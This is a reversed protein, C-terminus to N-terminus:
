GLMSAGAWAAAAAGAIGLAFRAHPVCRGRCLADLLVAWLGVPLLPVYMMLALVINRDRLVQGTAGLALVLVTVTTLFPVARRVLRRPLPRRPPPTTDVDPATPM